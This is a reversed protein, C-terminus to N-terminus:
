RRPRRWRKQERTEGCLLTSIMVFASTISKTRELLMHKITVMMCIKSSRSSKRTLKTGNNNNISRGFNNINEKVNNTRTGTYRTPPTRRRRGREMGTM